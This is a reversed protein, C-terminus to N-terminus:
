LLGRGVLGLGCLSQVVSHTGTLRVIGVDAFHIAILSNRSIAVTYICRTREASALGHPYSSIHRDACDQATMGLTTAGTDPAEGRMLRVQYSM